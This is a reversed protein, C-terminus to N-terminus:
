HGHERDWRISEAASGTMGTKKEMKKRFIGIEKVLKELKKQKVLKDLSNRLEDASIDLEKIEYKLRKSVRIAIIENM